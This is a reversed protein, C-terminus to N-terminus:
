SAPVHRVEVQGIGVEADVRVTRAAAPGLQIRRDVDSGSESQYTGDPTVVRVEGLRAHAHLEVPVGDPVLVVLHGVGVRAHVAEETTPGTTSRLDLTAEGIGLRHTASEGAVWTRNGASSTWRSAFSSAAGLALALVVALAILWRARGWRAGVLLGVGTVLLAAGLVAVVDVAAGLAHALLLLGTTLLVASVTLLGLPSRSRPPKPPAPPRSVAATPPPGWGPAAGAPASPSTWTPPAWGPPAATGAPSATTRRQQAVLFAIGALVLLPVTGRGNDVLTAVAVVALLVVVLVVPLSAGGRLVRQAESENRGEEPILLWGALYLVLGTGGFLALVVVLVRWLVPDTGTARAIAACVGRFVRDHAPRVLPPAPSPPPQDQTTGGAPPPTETM